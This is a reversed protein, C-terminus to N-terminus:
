ACQRRQWLGRRAEVAPPPSPRAASLGPQPVDGARARAAGAAVPVDFPRWECVAPSESFTSVHWTGQSGCPPHEDDIVVPCCPMEGSSREGFRAEVNTDRFVSCLRELP